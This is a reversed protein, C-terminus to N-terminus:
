SQRGKGVKLKPAERQLGKQYDKNLSILLISFHASDRLVQL